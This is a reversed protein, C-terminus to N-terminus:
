LLPVCLALSLLADAARDGLAAPHFFLMGVLREAAEGRGEAESLTM